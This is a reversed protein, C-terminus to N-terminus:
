RGGSSSNMQHLKKLDDKRFNLESKSKSYHQRDSTKMRKKQSIGAYQISGDQKRNTFECSDNIGKTPTTTKTM